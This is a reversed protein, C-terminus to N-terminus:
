RTSSRSTRSRPQRACRSPTLLDYTEQARALDADGIFADRWVEFPLMVTNATTQAALQPFLEQYALPTNDLVSTGNAPVFANFFVLRRIRDPVREAVRAIVSGGLSHGVLVFDDLEHEDLYTTISAVCDDHSVDRADGPGHGAVTPCHVEHGQETLRAAVDAWLTGDHWSGHVLVFIPM